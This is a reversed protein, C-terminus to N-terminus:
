VLAENLSTFQKSHKLFTDDLLIPKTPHLADLDVEYFQALKTVIGGVCIAGIVSDSILWLRWQM